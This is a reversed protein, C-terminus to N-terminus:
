HAERLEPIEQNNIITKRKFSLSLRGLLTIDFTQWVGPQRPQEPVLALFGYRAWTTLPRSRSPIM